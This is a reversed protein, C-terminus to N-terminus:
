FFSITRCHMRNIKLDNKNLIGFDDTLLAYPFLERLEQLHDNKESALAIVSFLFSFIIAQWM